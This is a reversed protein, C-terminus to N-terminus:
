SVGIIATTSATGDYLPYMEGNMEQFFVVQLAFLDRGEGAPTSSPTLVLDQATLDIVAEPLTEMVTAFTGTALDVKSWAMSMQFHTAGPPAVLDKEPVLGPLTVVGTATDLEPLVAVVQEFPAAVNFNFGVLAQRGIETELGVGVNREGRKSTLDYRKVQHCVKSLRNNMGSDTQGQILSRLASRLTKVSRAVIGFEAANERTRKFKPDSAIRAGDVGGKLRAFYRNGRKYFNVDDLTGQVKLLSKLKAMVLLLQPSFIHSKFERADLM